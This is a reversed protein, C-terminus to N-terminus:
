SGDRSHRECLQPLAEGQRTTSRKKEGHSGISRENHHLMLEPKTLESIESERGDLSEAEKTFDASISRPLPMGDAILKRKGM